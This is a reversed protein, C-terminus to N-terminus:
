TRWNRLAALLAERVEPPIEEERLTGTLRITARMQALYATCHPCGAIHAEFRARDDPTLRDELYDTVLTVLERCAIPAASSM